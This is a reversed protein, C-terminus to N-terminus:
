RRTKLLGLRQLPRGDICALGLGILLMGGIHRPRLQEGLFITGLFIASVPILFTVLSLNSAGATSLIRFFIIYALATCIVALGLLAAWTATSPMPLALPQEIILALPLMILTAGTLQGATALIPSIGLAAIRRGWLNSLGYSFSAGILALQPVLNQGANAALDLGMMVAVGVLGIIVGVFKAPTARDNTTFVHLILTTFFPTTANLISAYGGPLYKQGFVILTQPIVNNILGMILLTAAAAGTLAPRERLLALLVGLCLAGILVRSLVITFPPLERVAISIFFFSGGWIVSLALLLAWEHANMPRSASM